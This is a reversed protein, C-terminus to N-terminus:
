YSSRQDLRKRKRYMILAFVALGTGALAAANPEPASDASAIGVAIDDAGAIFPSTTVVQNSSLDYQLAGQGRIVAYLFNGDNAVGDIIHGSLNTFSASSLDTPITYFGGGDAGVYLQGTLADFTLGDAQNPTSITKIIAGTAPDLQAVQNKDLVAFLHGLNDYALGDPRLGSYVISMASTTSLGVRQTSLSVRQISNTGVNSVLLSEGGPEMVMDATGSGLNGALLSNITGNFTAIHGPGILGYIINGARDFVLSDVTGGTTTVPTVTNTVPDWQVISGMEGTTIDITSAVGIVSGGLFATITLLLAPRGLRTSIRRAELIM